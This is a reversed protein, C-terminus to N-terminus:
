LSGPYATCHRAWQGQAHGGRYRRPYTFRQGYGCWKDYEDAESLFIIEVGVFAPSATLAPSLFVGMLLRMACGSPRAMRALRRRSAKLKEDYLQEPLHVAAYCRPLRWSM